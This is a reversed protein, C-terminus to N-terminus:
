YHFYFSLDWMGNCRMEKETVQPQIGGVYIRPGGKRLAARRQRKADPHEMFHMSHPNAIGGEQSSGEPSIGRLLASDAAAVFPPPQPGDLHTACGQAAPDHYFLGSNNKGPSARLKESSLCHPICMRDHAGGGTQSPTGMSFPDNGAAVAMRSHHTLPPPQPLTQMLDRALGEHETGARSPPLGLGALYLRSSVTECGEVASPLVPVNGNVGAFPTITLCESCIKIRLM